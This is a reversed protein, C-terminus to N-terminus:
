QTGGAGPPGHLMNEVARNVDNHAASLANAVTDRTQGPFMAMLIAIHEESPPRTVTGAEPARGAFTDIYEQPRLLCISMTLDAMRIGFLVRVSGAAGEAAARNGRRNRIGAAVGDVAFSREQAQARQDPTTATSRAIPASSLAPLLFRAALRRLLLPFRWQKISGIDSRYLAGALLGCCSAALASPFQNTLLQLSNPTHHILPAFPSLHSISIPSNEYLCLLMYMKDSLTVGFVRFRYTVPVLRHYQYLAAFMISYPGAPIYKLGFPGGSVLAGVELLTSVISSVFLFAAYKSSGFQREIVRMHYLVLSGFFLESSNAFACHHTLLRWFQQLIIHSILIYTFLDSLKRRSEISEPERRYKGVTSQIGHSLEAAVLPQASVAGYECGRATGCECGIMERARGVTTGPPTDDPASKTALSVVDQHKVGICAALMRRRVPASIELRPCQLLWGPRLIANTTSSEPRDVLPIFPFSQASPTKAKLSIPFLSPDNRQQSQKEFVM